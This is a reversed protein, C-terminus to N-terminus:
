ALGTRRMSGSHTEEKAKGCTCDRFGHTCCGGCSRVLADRLAHRARHLRVRVNAPTIGLEAAVLDREEGLLDVRHLLEGYEPRLAPLLTQFCACLRDQLETEEVTEELVAQDQVYTRDRRQRSAEARYHDMLVSRLVSYLWAVVSDRQRIEAGKSIARLCFNQLVDEATSEDGLRVTLFRLFAKRNDILAAEIVADVPKLAVGVHADREARDQGVSSM